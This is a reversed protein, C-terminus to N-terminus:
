MWRRQQKQERTKSEETDEEDQSKPKPVVGLSYWPSYLYLFTVSQKNNQSAETGSLTYASWHVCAVWRVVHSWFIWNFHSVHFSIPMWYNTTWNVTVTVAGFTVYRWSRKPIRLLVQYSMVNITREEQNYCQMTRLSGSMESFFYIADIKLTSFYEFGSVLRLM